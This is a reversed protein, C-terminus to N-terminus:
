CPRYFPFTNSVLYLELVRDIMLFTSSWRTDVDKLLGVIRLLLPPDGWGGNENRVEITSEFDERHQGSARCAMVLRRASAVVDDKLAEWYEVNDRLAQSIPITPDTHNIDPDFHPLATLHKLGAKVAINVVHPFCSFEWTLTVILVNIYIVNVCRIRNGVIDFPINLVKLEDAVEEMMTDNNSANDLTVM